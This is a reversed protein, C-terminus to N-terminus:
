CTVRKLYRYFEGSIEEEKELEELRAWLELDSKLGGSFKEGTGNEQLTAQFADTKPKSHPKHATRHKGPYNLM